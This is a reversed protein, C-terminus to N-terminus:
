ATHLLRSQEGEVAGAGLGANTVAGAGNANTPPVAAVTVPTGALESLKFFQLVSHWTKDICSPEAAAKAAAEAPTPTGKCCAVMVIILVLFAYLAFICALSAAVGFIGWFFFPPSVSVVGAGGHYAMNSFLGARFTEYLVWGVSALVLGWALLNMQLHKWVKACINTTTASDGCISQIFVDALAGFFLIALALGLAAAAAPLGTYSHGKQGWYMSLAVATVTLAVGVMILQLFSSIIGGINKACSACCGEADAPKAVVAPTAPPAAAGVVGSSLSPKRQVVTTAM